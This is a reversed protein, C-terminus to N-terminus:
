PATFNDIQYRTSVDHPQPLFISNGHQNEACAHAAGGGCSLSISQYGKIDHCSKYASGNGGAQTASDSQRSLVYPAAGVGHNCAACYCKTVCQLPLRVFLSPDLVSKVSLKHAFSKIRQGVARLRIRKRSN